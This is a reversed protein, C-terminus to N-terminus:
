ITTVITLVHSVVKSGDEGYVGGQRTWCCTRGEGVTTVLSIDLLFMLKVIFNLQIVTSEGYTTTSLVASFRSVSHCPFCAYLCAPPCPVLLLSPLSLHCASVPTSLLSFSCHSLCSALLCLSAPLCIASIPLACTQVGTM